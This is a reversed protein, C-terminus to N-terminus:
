YGYLGEGEEPKRTELDPSVIVAAPGTVPCKHECIGCGICKDVIIRPRKLVMTGGGELVIEEDDFVIAKEPVPCHEECVICNEPRSHPICRNKDIWAMGIVFLRKDEVSLREIAESPCVQSCLTCNYECYGAAFDMVPTFLGEWGAEHFAPHIANRMCVKMCAGCRLCRNLFEGEERSGPPRLRPPPAYARVPSIRTLPVLAAGTAAATIFRRRPLDLAAEPRRWSAAFGIAEEPCLPPCLMCATCEAQSGRHAGEELLGVPCEEWCEGCDTCGDGVMRTLTRGRACLSLLGGLPCLNTCWFRPQWRELIMVALLVALSVWAWRFHQQEFTLVHEKMVTYVPESLPRLFPLHFYIGDFFAVAAANFSPILTVSFGRAVISFPDALWASQWGLLSAALVAGLVYYKVRRGRWGSRLPKAFLPVLYRRTFDLLSGLPCFWGCFVRGLLLTVVVTLLAPWFHAVAERLALLTSLGLLPDLQFFTNVPYRIIDYGRYETRLLLFLFLVFFLTQSVRRLTLWRTWSM